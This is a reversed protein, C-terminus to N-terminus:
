KGIGFAVAIGAHAYRSTIVEPNLTEAASALEFVSGGSEDAPGLEVEDEADAVLEAEAVLLLGGSDELLECALALALAATGTAAVEVADDAVLFELGPGITPPTTPPTATTAIM